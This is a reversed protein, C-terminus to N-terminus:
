AHLPPAHVVAQVPAPCHLPPHQLPTLQWDPASGVAQPVPPAAHTLQPLVASPQEAVPVQVHPPAAAQPAPWVQVPPVHMVLQEPGPCHAAPQQSPVLQWDPVATAAQPVAPADQTAQPLVASPQEAAPAQM